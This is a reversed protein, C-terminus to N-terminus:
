GALNAEYHRNASSVAETVKDFQEQLVITNNKSLIQVVYRWTTNDDSDSYPSICFVSIDRTLSVAARFERDTVQSMSAYLNTKLHNMAEKLTFKM